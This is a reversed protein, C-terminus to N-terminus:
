RGKSQEHGNIYDKEGCFRQLVDKGKAKIGDLSQVMERFDMMADKMTEYFEAVLSPESIPEDYFAKEAFRLIDTSKQFIETATMDPNDLTVAKHVYNLIDAAYYGEELMDMAKSIAKEDSEQFDKLEVAEIYMEKLKPMVSCLMEGAAEVRAHIEPMIEGARYPNEDAVILYDDRGAIRLEGFDGIDKEHEWAQLFEVPDTPYYEDPSFYEGVVKETLIDRIIEIQNANMGFDQLKMEYESM